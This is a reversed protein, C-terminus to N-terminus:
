RPDVIGEAARRAMWPATSYKGTDISVYNGLRTIGYRMEATSRPAGTASRGAVGPSCSGARSRRPSPPM